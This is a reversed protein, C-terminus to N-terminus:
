VLGYPLVILPMSAENILENIFFKRFLHDYINRAGKQLVLMSNRESIIHQKITESADDANFIKITSNLRDKYKDNIASLYSISKKEKDKSSIVSIFEVEKIEDKFPHFFNEFASENLPYNPSISVLLKKPLFSNTGVPVIVSICNLQDIIKIATSDILFKELMGKEKGGLFIINNLQPNIVHPLYTILKTDTVIINYASINPIIQSTLACLSKHAEKTEIEIIQERSANDTLAPVLGPVQHILFMEANCSERWAEALKLLSSSSASFDILVLFRSNM